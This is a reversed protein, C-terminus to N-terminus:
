VLEPRARVLRPDVAMPRETPQGFYFGQGFDVALDRMAEFEGVREVGEAVVRAGCEHACEVLAAVLSAAAPRTSSAPPSSTTSRPSTRSSCGRPLRALGPRRVPRRARDAAGRKRHAHVLEELMSATPAASPGCSRSASARPTPASAASSPGPRACRPSSTSRRRAPRPQRVPDRGRADAAARDRARRRPRPLRLLLARRAGRRRGAAGGGRVEVAGLKGRM